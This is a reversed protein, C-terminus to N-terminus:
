FITDQENKTKKERLNSKTSQPYLIIFLGVQDLNAVDGDGTAEGGAEVGEPHPCLCWDDIMMIM